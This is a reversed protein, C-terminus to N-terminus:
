THSHISDRYLSCPYGKAKEAAFTAYKPQLETALLFSACLFLRDLPNSM